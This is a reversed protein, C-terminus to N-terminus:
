ARGFGRYLLGAAAAAGPDLHNRGDVLLKPPDMLASARQLDLERFEEWETVVAAAAGRM